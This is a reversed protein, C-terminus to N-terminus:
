RVDANMNLKSADYMGLREAIRMMQHSRGRKELYILAGACHLSDKTARYEGSEEDHAGTQHCHFAGSAFEELRRLSFGHAMKKTFPCQDCPSTLTYNM